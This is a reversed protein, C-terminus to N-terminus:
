LVIVRRLCRIPLPVMGVDSMSYTGVQHSVWHMQLKSQSEGRAAASTRKSTSSRYITQAYGQDGARDWYAGPNSQGQNGNMTQAEALM